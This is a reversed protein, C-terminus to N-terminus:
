RKRQDLYSQLIVMASKEDRSAEVGMADAYQSTLREDMYDCPIHIVRSVSSGFQRVVATNANESGDLGLPLDIVIKGFRQDRVLQDLDGLVMEKKNMLVGFPLVVGLGDDVWALGIRKQGYDIGLLNM